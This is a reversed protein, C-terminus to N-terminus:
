DVSWLSDSGLSFGAPCGLCRPEAHLGRRYARLADYKPSGRQGVQELAGWSGHRGPQSIDSFHMLLAGGHSQWDSLYRHYLLGMRPDRSASVFLDTVVDNAVVSEKGVLHQGGEYGLVPLGFEASVQLHQDLWGAAQALAGGEPADPLYGGEELEAFLLDLGGDGQLAWEELTTENGSSGLYGGFYNAIALADIGQAACSPAGSNWLPCELAQRLVWPNSAQGAMVCVVQDAEVGFVSKWIACVEASRKGYWNVTKTFDSAQDTPWLAEAQASVWASQSFAGNWVENSYELYVRREPALTDRTLRALQRVFDDDARHPLTLWLSVGLRNALALMVEPPVGASGTYTADEPRARQEWREVPSGNTRMWEMFRLVEFTRTRALFDPNFQEGAYLLSERDERVLRLNRLYDGRAEPDTAYIQIHAVGQAPDLEIVDRGPMSEADIRRAGLRYRLEGSGEYLMLYRGGPISNPLALVTAAISFGPLEPDPLSRVWGRSDLDLADAEGTDWGGDCDADRPQECQTLWPRAQKFLNLFPLQTSWDTVERLNTGLRPPDAAAPMLAPMYAPMLAANARTPALDSGTPMLFGISAIAVLGFTFVTWRRMRRMESPCM